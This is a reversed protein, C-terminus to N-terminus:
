AEPRDVASIAASIAAWGRPEDLRVVCTGDCVFCTQQVMNCASVRAYRAHNFILRGKGKCIRCTM